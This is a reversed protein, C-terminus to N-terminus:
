NEGEIYQLAGSPCTHIVEKVKENDENELNIWPKKKTNFVSNLGRVCNASHTCMDLNFFVKIGEGTYIRYGKDFLEKETM